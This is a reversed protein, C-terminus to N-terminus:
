IQLREPFSSTTRKKHIPPRDYGESKDAGDGDGILKKQHEATLLRVRNAGQV